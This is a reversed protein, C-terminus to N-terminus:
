LVARAGPLRRLLGALAFSICVGIASALAFKLLPPAVLALLAFQLPVLVLPHIIYVGYANPALQLVLRSPKAVYERFLVLLGVSLGTAIFAEVTSWILSGLTAGGGSWIPVVAAAIVVITASGILVRNM